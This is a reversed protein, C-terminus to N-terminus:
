SWWTWTLVQAPALALAELKGRGRSVPWLDNGAALTAAAGAGLSQGNLWGDAHTWRKTILSGDAHQAFVHLQHLMPSVCTVRAGVDTGLDTLVAWQVPSTLDFFDATWVQGRDSVVFLKNLVSDVSAAVVSAHALLKFVDPPPSIVKWVAPEGRMLVDLRAAWLVGNDDVVLLFGNCESHFISTSMAMDADGDLATWTSQSGFPGQAWDGAYLQGDQGLVVLLVHDTASSGTAAVVRSNNLLPVAHPPLGPPFLPTIEVEIPEWAQGAWDRVDAKRLVHLQQDFITFALAYGPSPELCTFQTGQDFIRDLGAREWVPDACHSFQCVVLRQHVNLGFLTTHPYRGASPSPQAVIIRSADPLNTKVWPRWRNQKVLFSMAGSSRHEDEFNLQLTHERVQSAGYDAVLNSGTVEAIPSESVAVECDTWTHDAMLARLTFSMRWHPEPNSHHTVAPHKLEITMDPDLTVPAQFEIWEVDHPTNEAIEGVAIVEDTAVIRCGVVVDALGVSFIDLNENETKVYIALAVVRDLASDDFSGDEVRATDGDIKPRHTLSHGNFEITYEPQLWEVKGGRVFTSEWRPYDDVAFDSGDVSAHGGDEYQLELTRRGGRLPGQYSCRMDGHPEVKITSDVVQRKFEDYSGFEASSGTQIIFINKGSAYHDKNAFYERLPGNRWPDDRKQIYLEALCIIKDLNKRVMEAKSATLEVRVAQEDAGGDVMRTVDIEIAQRGVYGVDPQDELDDLADDIKDPLNKFDEQAAELQNKYFGFDSDLVELAEYSFVALYAEEVTQGPQTDHSHRLRGFTWSGNKGSLADSVFGVIDEVVGETDDFKDRNPEVDRNVEDFGGEPLFVHTGYDAFTRQFWHFDCLLIAATEHQVMMPVAWYGTLWGPGDEHDVLGSLDKKKLVAENAVVGATAGLAFSGAIGGVLGGALGAFVDPLELGKFPTSPFASLGTSLTAMNLNSQFNLQGPRYVQVTSLMVDRDRYTYLNMRSRVSGEILISLDDAHQKTSFPNGLGAVALPIGAPGLIPSLGYLAIKGWAAFTQANLLPDGFEFAAGAAGAAAGVAGGILGGFAMGVQSGAIGGVWALGVDKALAWPEGYLKSLLTFPDTKGLGWRDTYTKGGEITQKVLFASTTWWFVLDDEYAGYNTHTDALGANVQAIYPAHKTLKPAYGQEQSDRQRNKDPYTIGHKAADEFSISVRSRDVFSNEPPRVGIELLVEPPRYSSTALCMGIASDKDTFAGRTGFALEIVDGVSTDWGSHKSKFQSRGGVVGFSGKHSFRAYDFFMLDLVMSAKRRVEADLAFDAINLLAEIHERYYGSSNFETWGFRLRNNLYKLVRWRGRQERKAGDMAAPNNPNARDKESLFDRGPLFKEEPWLQGVLYDASAFLIYHNESWYQLEKDVYKSYGDDTCTKGYNKKFNNLADNDLCHFPEDLWFKYRLVAQKVVEEAFLSFRFDCTRLDAANLQLARLLQTHSQVLSNLQSLDQLRAVRQRLYDNFREQTQADFSRRRWRIQEPKIHGPITGYLYLVRVLHALGMDSNEKNAYCERVSGAMAQLWYDAKAWRPDSSAEVKKKNAVPLTLRIRYHTNDDELFGVEINKKVSVTQPKFTDPTLNGPIKYLDQLENTDFNLFDPISWGYVDPILWPRDNTVELRSVALELSENGRPQRPATTDDEPLLLANSQLSDSFDRLKDLLARPTRFGLWDSNQGILTAQFKDRQAREDNSWERLGDLPQGDSGKHFANANGRFSGINLGRLQSEFFWRARREVAARLDDSTDNV